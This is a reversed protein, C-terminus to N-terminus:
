RNVVLCNLAYNAFEDPLQTRIEADAGAFHVVVQHGQKRIHINALHSFARRAQEIASATYIRADLSLASPPSSHRSRKTTKRTTKKATRRAAM